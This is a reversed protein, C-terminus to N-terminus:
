PFRKILVRVLHSTRAHLAPYLTSIVEKTRDTALCEFTTINHDDLGMPAIALVIRVQVDDGGTPSPIRLSLLPYM